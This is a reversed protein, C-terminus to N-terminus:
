TGGENVIALPVFGGGQDEELALVLTYAGRKLRKMPMKGSVNLFFDGPALTGLEKTGVLRAEVEGGDDSSEPAAYIALRLLGTHGIARQSQVKELSFLARRGQTTFGLGTVVIDGRGIALDDSGVGGNQKAAFSYPSTYVVYDVWEYKRGNRVEILLASFKMGKGARRARTTVVTNNLLGGAPITGLAERALLKGPKGGDYVTGSQAYLSLYLPPSDEGSTNQIAAVRIIMERGVIQWSSDHSLEVGGQAGLEHHSSLVFLALGLTLISKM